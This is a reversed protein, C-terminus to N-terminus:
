KILCYEKYQGMYGGCGIIIAVCTVGAARALWKIKEFIDRPEPVQYGQKVTSSQKEPVDNKPKAYTL